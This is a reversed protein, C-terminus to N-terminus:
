ATPQKLHVDMQPFPFNIGAKPLENYMRENMDFFVGWYDASRVWARVTLIVSSDALSKVFVVAEQGYETFTETIRPDSGLIELISRRATDINDGYSIAVDWDVRRYKERSANNISSTSLMGNPITISKNDGTNIVTHFIQIEKVTGAYGQAEIFDGVKYPKLLMILAGAAFNQLTGSLAMGIAVGASAFLALFSSTEIGLIGIVTVILIFYLVIRIMSLVFTTLTTDVNRRNMMGSVLRYLRNIVFKGVYFVLVAIALNIAFTVMSNTIKDIFDELSMYKFTSVEAAAQSTSDIIETQLM